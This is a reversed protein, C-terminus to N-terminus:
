RVLEASNHTSVFFRTCSPSLSRDDGVHRARRAIDQLEGEIDTPERDQNSIRGAQSFGRVLYLLNPDLPRSFRAAEQERGKM